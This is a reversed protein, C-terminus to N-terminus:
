CIIVGSFTVDQGPKSPKVTCLFTFYVLSAASDALRQLRQAGDCGAVVIEMASQLSVIAMVSLALAIYM